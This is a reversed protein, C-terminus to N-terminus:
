MVVFRTYMWDVRFILQIFCFARLLKLIGRLENVHGTEKRIDLCCDEEDLRSRSM